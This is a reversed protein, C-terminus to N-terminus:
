FPYGITLVFRGREKVSGGKISEKSKDTTVVDFSITRPRLPFGFEARLPGIPTM